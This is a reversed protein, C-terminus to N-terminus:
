KDKEGEQLAEIWGSKRIVEESVFIPTAFRLAMAIADSPRSDIEKMVGNSEMTIIAFYTSERLDSVMVRVMNMRFKGLVSAFLDHTGPRESSLSLPWAAEM